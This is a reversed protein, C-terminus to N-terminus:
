RHIRSSVPSIMGTPAGLSFDWSGTALVNMRQSPIRCPQRRLSIDEEALSVLSPDLMSGM